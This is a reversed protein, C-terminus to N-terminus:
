QREIDSKFGDLNDAGLGDINVYPIYRDAVACIEELTYLGHLTLFVQTTSKASFRVSLTSSAVLTMEM